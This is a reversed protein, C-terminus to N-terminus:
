LSSTTKAWRWRWLQDDTTYPQRSDAGSSKRDGSARTQFSSGRWTVHAGDGGLKGATTQLSMKEATGRGVKQPARSSVQAM